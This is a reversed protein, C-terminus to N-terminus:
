ALRKHAQIGALALLGEEIGQQATEGEIAPDKRPQDKVIEGTRHALHQLAFGAQLLFGEGAKPGVVVELGTEAIGGGTMFFAADLAQDAKGPAVEQHRHGFRLGEFLDILAQQLL